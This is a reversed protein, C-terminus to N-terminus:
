EKIKGYKMEWSAIAEDTAIGLIDKNYREIRYSEPNDSHLESVFIANGMKSPDCGFGGTARVLQYKAHRFDEDFFSEKLVVIKGEINETTWPTVDDITLVTKTIM